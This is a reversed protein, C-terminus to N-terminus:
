VLERRKRENWNVEGRCLGWCGVWRGKGIGGSVMIDDWVGGWGMIGRFGEGVGKWGFWVLRGNGIFSIGM